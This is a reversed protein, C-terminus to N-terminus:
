AIFKSRKKPKNQQVRIVSLIRLLEGTFESPYLGTQFKKRDLTFRLILPNKKGILVSMAGLHKPFRQKFHVRCNYSIVGVLFPSCGVFISSRLVLFPLTLPPFPFRPVSFSSCLALFRSRPVSYPSCLVPFSTRPVSSYPSRPVTFPSRLIPFPSRPFSFSSRFAFFPTLPVPFPSRPVTFSSCFVLFLSYPASFLSRLVPFPSCLVSFPSLLVLFPFVPTQSRFKLPKLKLKQKLNMATMTHDHNCPLNVVFWVGGKVCPKLRPIDKKYLRFMKSGRLYLLHQSYYIPYGLLSKIVHRLKKLTTSLWLSWDIKKLIRLYRAIVLAMRSKGAWSNDRFSSSQPM